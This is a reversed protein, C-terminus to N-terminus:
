ILRRKLFSHGSGKKLYKEFQIAKNKNGFVCYWVLVFPKKTKSYKGSSSNHEIIRKKLNSTYGIYHSSDKKSRLVYVYFM